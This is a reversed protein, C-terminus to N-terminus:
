KSFKNKSGTRPTSSASETYENDNGSIAINSYCDDLNQNPEPPPIFADEFDSEECPTFTDVASHYHFHCTYVNGERNKVCVLEMERPQRKKAESFMERDSITKGTAQNVCYLQLGWMVDASYEIEGTEKFSEFSIPASYNDRNLSSLAIITANTKLQWDKLARANFSVGERLDMKPPRPMRQLYDIFIVPPKDLSACFRDLLAILKDASHASTAQLTRFIRTSKKLENVVSDVTRNWGGIAIQASSLRSDNDLEYVRHAITKARLQAISMEYSVYLVPEGTSALNDALQWAFSTKGISPLGGLIYLGPTFIQQEDINAFGTKRNAFKRRRQVDEDFNQSFYASEDQFGSDAHNEETSTKPAIAHNEIESAVAAFEDASNDLAQFFAERLAHAGFARLLWNADNKEDSTDGKARPLFRAIAPVGADILAKRTNEAAQQGADDDDFLILIKLGKGDDARAKIRDVLKRWHPAGNIAVVNLDSDIQLLSLADFIGEVAYIVSDAPAEDIATVNFIEVAGGNYAKRLYKREYEPYDEIKDALRAVYSNGCLFIIRKQPTYFHKDLRNEPSYWKEDYTVGYREFTTQKIARAFKTPVPVPSKRYRAVDAAVIKAIEAKRIEVDAANSPSNASSAQETKKVPSSYGDLQWGFHDALFKAIELADAGSYPAGTVPIGLHYAAIDVNSFNGNRGAAKCKFCGLLERGGISFKTAGTKSNGRGGDCDHHPCIKGGNEADPLLDLLLPQAKVQDFIDKLTM